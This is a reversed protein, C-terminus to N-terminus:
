KNKKSKNKKFFNIKEPVKRSTICIKNNKALIKNLKLNRIIEEKKERDINM